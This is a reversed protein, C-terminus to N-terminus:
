PKCSLYFGGEPLAHNVHFHVVDPITEGFAYDEFGSGSFVARLLRGNSTRVDINSQFPKLEAKASELVSRSIDNIVNV